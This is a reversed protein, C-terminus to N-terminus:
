DFLQGFQDLVYNFFLLVISAAIACVLARLYGLWWLRKPRGRIDDAFQKLPPHFPISSWGVPEEVLRLVCSHDVGKGQLLAQDIPSEWDFLITGAVPPAPNIEVLVAEQFDGKRDQRLAFDLTYM